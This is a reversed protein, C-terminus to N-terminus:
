NGIRPAIYKDWYSKTGIRSVIDKISQGSELSFERIAEQYKKTRDKSEEVDFGRYDDGVFKWKQHYIQPDKKPSMYRVESNSKVLVSDKISPEPSDDWDPSYLFSINNNSKNYKVITFVFDPFEEGILSVGNEYIDKPISSQDIYDRHIYFDNGISKGVKRINHFKEFTLIM